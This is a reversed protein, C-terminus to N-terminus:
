VQGPTKPSRLNALQQELEARRQRSADIVEAQVRQVESQIRNRVNEGSDPTLLLVAVAGALGGLVFGSLFRM